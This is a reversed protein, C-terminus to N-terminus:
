ALIEQRARGLCRNLQDLNLPKALYDNMGAELCKERHGELAHATLAIIYIDQNGEGAKGERIRKATEFGDIPAMRIDLLVIAYDSQALADLAQLGNCVTDVEYGLHEALKTTILLNNPNDDVVLIRLQDAAEGSFKMALPLQLARSRLKGAADKRPKPLFLRLEFASGRGPESRCVLDGGMANALRRSIALGLGTGEVGECDNAGGRAFPQFLKELTQPNMGPGTDKVALLAEVSAGDAGLRSECRLRISGENTFKVANGALNILIQKIRVEDGLVWPEELRDADIELALGKARAKNAVISRVERLLAELDVPAEDLEVGESEIRSYDLIQNILQLLLSGSASIAEVCEAQEADLRTSSLLDCFGIVANMPTRIEHSMNALFASKAECARTAQREAERATELARKLEENAELIRAHLREAEEVADQPSPSRRSPPLAPRAGVAYAWPAAAPRGEAAVWVGEEGGEAPRLLLTERFVAGKVVAERARGLGGEAGDACLREWVLGEVDPFDRGLLALFAPNAWRIRGGDDLFLWGRSDRMLADEFPNAAAASALAAREVSLGPGSPGEEAAIRVRAWGGAPLRWFWSAPASGARQARRRMAELRVRDEEAVGLFGAVADLPGPNELSAGEEGGEVAAAEFFATEPKELRM